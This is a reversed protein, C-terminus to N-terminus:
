HNDTYLGRLSGEPWVIDAIRWGAKLRVLRVVFKKPKKFNRFAVSGTAKDAGDTQTTIALRTIEWEQADVFPDGDLAPVEDRKKAAAQDATILEVLSPEFYRQLVRKDAYDIGPFGKAEYHQYLATLFAQPTAEDALASAAFITICAIALILRRLFVTPQKM